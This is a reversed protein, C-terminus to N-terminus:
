AAPDEDPVIHIDGEDDQWHWGPKLVMAARMEARVFPDQRNFNHVVMMFDYEPDLGGVLFNSLQDRRAMDANLEEETEPALGPEPLSAWVEEADAGCFIYCEMYAQDVSIANMVGWRWNWMLDLGTTAEPNISFTARRNLILFERVLARGGEDRERYEHDDGYLTKTLFLGNDRRAKLIEVTIGSPSGGEVCEAVIEALESDSPNARALVWEQTNRRLIDDMDPKTVPGTPEDGHENAIEVLKDILPIETDNM